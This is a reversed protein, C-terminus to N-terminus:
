DAVRWDVGWHRWAEALTLLLYRHAAQFGNLADNASAEKTHECALTAQQLQLFSKLEPDKAERRLGHGCAYMVAPGMEQQYFTRDQWRPSMSEGGFQLAWAFVALAALATLWASRLGRLTLRSAAELGTLIRPLTSDALSM